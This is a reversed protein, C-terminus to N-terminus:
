LLDIEWHDQAWHSGVVATLSPVDAPDLAAADTIGRSRGFFPDTLVVADGVQILVSANGLYTVAWDFDQESGNSNMQRRTTARAGRREITPTTWSRAQTVPPFSGLVKFSHLM